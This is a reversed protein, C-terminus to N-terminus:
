ESLKTLVAKSVRKGKKNFVDQRIMGIGEALWMRSTHATNAMMMKANNDSTIVYCDFTGAPTTLTEKKEVTRNVMDFAMNM